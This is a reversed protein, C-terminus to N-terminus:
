QSGAPWALLEGLREALSSGFHTSCAATEFLLVVSSLTDLDESFTVPRKNSESYM